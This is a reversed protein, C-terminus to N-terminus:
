DLEEEEKVDESSVEVGTKEAAIKLYTLPHNIRELKADTILDLHYACAIRPLGRITAELIRKAVAKKEDGAEISKLKTVVRSNIHEIGRHRFTCYMKNQITSCAPMEYDVMGGELGYIHRIVYGARKLFDDYTMNVNDVAKNYWFELQQDVNMGIKKLFIGFQLREWHGLYGTENISIMLDEICPPLITVNEEVSGKLNLNDFDLQSRKFVVKTNMYENVKQAIRKMTPSITGELRSAYDTLSESITEQFRHKITVVLRNLPAIVWGRYLVAKRTKVLHPAYRFDLCIHKNMGLIDKVEAAPMLGNRSRISQTKVETIGLLDHIDEGTQLELDELTMWIQKGSENPYLNGLIVKKREWKLNRFDLEFLDGETEILWSSLRPDLCVGIKMITFAQKSEKGLDILDYKDLGLEIDKRNKHSLLDMREDILKIWESENLNTEVNLERNLYWYPLNDNFSM